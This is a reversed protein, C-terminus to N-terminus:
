DAEFVMITTGDDSRMTLTTATVALTTISNLSAMFRQELATRAPETCAMRTMAGDQFRSRGNRRNHVMNFRNCGSFGIAQNGEFTISPPNARPASAGNISRLVWNTGFLSPGRGSRSAVSTFRALRTGDARLLNIRAESVEVRAAGQLAGVVEREARATMRDFCRKTSSVVQDFRAPQNPPTVLRTSYQNCGSMGTAAGGERLYLTPLITLLRTNPAVVPRPVTNAPLRVAVPVGGLESLVYDGFYARVPSPAGRPPAAREPTGTTAAAEPAPSAVVARFQALTLGIANFLTITDGARAINATQSLIRLTTTQAQNQKPLCAMETAILDDFGVIKSAIPDTYLRGSFSNCATAGTVQYGPLFTIRTAALEPERVPRGGIRTLAYTGSLSIAPIQRPNVIPAPPAPPTVVRVAPAKTRAKKAKRRSADADVPVAIVGILAGVLAIKLASPLKVRSGM